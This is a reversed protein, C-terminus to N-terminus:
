AMSRRHYLRHPINRLSREQAHASLRPAPTPLADPSRFDPTDGIFRPPPRKAIPRRKSAIPRSRRYSAAFGSYAIPSLRFARHLTYPTLHLPSLLLFVSM